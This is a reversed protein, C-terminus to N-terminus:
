TPLPTPTSTATPVPTSTPVPSSTPTLTPSPSPTPTPTSTATPTPTSTSTRTPTPTAIGVPRFRVARGSPVVAVTCNSTCDGYSVGLTGDQNELGVSASSRGRPDNMVQYQMEVRGDQHLIVEFTYSAGQPCSYHDWNTWEFVVYTGFSQYFIGDNTQCRSDIDDWFPAIFLNPDARNPIGENRYESSGSRFTLMGNANIYIVNYAEGYFPFAFPLVLPGACVDDVNELTAVNAGTTSIEVWNFTPGGEQTNDRVEYLTAAPAGSVAPSTGRCVSGVPVPTPTVTPTSTAPATPTATSALTPATTPTPTDAPPPEPAPTPVPTATASPLPTATVTAPVATPTSTSAPTPTAAALTPTATALPTPPQSLGPATRGTGAPSASVCLEGTANLDFSGLTVSSPACVVHGDLAVIATVVSNGAQGLPAPAGVAALRQQGRAAQGPASQGLNEFTDWTAGTAPDQWTRVRWLTGGDEYVAEGVLADAPGLPEYTDFTSGTLPDEWTRVQWLNGDSPEVYPAEGLLPYTSTSIARPFSVTPKGGATRVEQLIIQSSAPAVVGAPAGPVLVPAAEAVLAAALGQMAALDRAVAAQQWAALAQPNLQAKLAAPTGAGAVTEVSVVYTTGRVLAVAAPTDTQFSTGPALQQVRNLTTGVTQFLSAGGASGQAPPSLIVQTDSAVNVETGDTYTLLAQGAADTRVQDGERLTAGDQAPGFVGARGASEVASAIVTLVSEFAVQGLPSGAASSSVSPLNLGLLLAGVLATRAALARRASM